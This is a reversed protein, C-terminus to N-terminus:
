TLRGCTMQTTRASIAHNEQKSKTRSDLQFIKSKKLYKNIDKNANKWIFRRLIHYKMTTAQRSRNRYPM